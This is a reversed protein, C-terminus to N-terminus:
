KLFWQGIIGVDTDDWLQCRNVPKEREFQSMESEQYSSSKKMIDQGSPVQRSVRATTLNQQFLGGRVNHRHQFPLAVENGAPPSPLGPGGGGTVGRTPSLLTPTKHGGHWLRLSGVCDRSPPLAPLEETHKASTFPQQSFTKQRALSSRRTRWSSFTCQEQLKKRDAGMPAKPTAPKELVREGAWSMHLPFSVWPSVVM